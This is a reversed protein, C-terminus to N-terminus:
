VRCERCSLASRGIFLPMLAGSRYLDVQM